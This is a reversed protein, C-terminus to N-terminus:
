VEIKGGRTVFATVEHDYFLTPDAWLEIGNESLQKAFHVDGGTIYKKDRYTQYFYPYTLKKFIDVKILAGPVGTSGIKTLETKDDLFMRNEESKFKKEVFQKYQTPLFPAQRQRTIGTVFDKKHSLLKVIMDKPYKHDEDLQIIYDFKNEEAFVCAMNRMHNIEPAKFVQIYTNEFYKRTFIYMEILSICFYEPWDKRNSIVAILVKDNGKAYAKEINGGFMKDLNNSMQQLLQFRDLGSM